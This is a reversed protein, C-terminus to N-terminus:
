GFTSNNWGWNEAKMDTFNLYVRDPSIQLNKQLYTCLHHTLSKNTSKNIGGISKIDIFASPDFSGSMLMQEATIIVMVYTEPKGLEKGILHSIDKSVIEKQEQSISFSLQLNLLPM